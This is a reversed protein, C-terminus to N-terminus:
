KEMEKSAAEEHPRRLFDLGFKLATVLLSVWPFAKEDLFSTASRTLTAALASAAAPFELSREALGAVRDMQLRAEHIELSISRLDDKASEALAQVAKATRYLQVLLPVLFAGLVVLVLVLVYELMHGM